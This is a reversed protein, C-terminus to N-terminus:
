HTFLFCFTIGLPLGSRRRPVSDLPRPVGLPGEDLRLEMLFGLARGVLPGPAVGLIDM